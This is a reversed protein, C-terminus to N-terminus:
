PADTMCSNPQMGGRYPRALTLGDSGGSCSYGGAGPDTTMLIVTMVEDKTGSLWCTVTPKSLM